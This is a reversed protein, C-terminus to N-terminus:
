HFQSRYQTPTKNTMAKFAVNFTSLNNFGSDHAVSIIKSKANGTELLKKAEEIRYSNIFNAFNKNSHRNIVLSVERPPLNIHDALDKLSLDPKLYLKRQRMIQDINELHGEGDLFSIKTGKYKEIGNLSFLEHRNFAMYALFFILMSFAIPGASYMPIIGFFIAAYVLWVGGLVGLLNMFWAKLKKDLDNMRVRYQHFSLLVYLLAQTLVLSYSFYWFTSDKDNPIIASLLIYITSPIFHILHIRRAQKIVGCISLGYLFLLPGVALNAALGLNKIILPLDVFNYFVSKLIRLSLFILLLGLLINSKKRSKLFIIGFFFSLGLGISSVLSVLVIETM